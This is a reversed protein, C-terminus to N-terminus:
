ETELPINMREVLPAGAEVHFLHATNDRPREAPKAIMDWGTALSYIAQILGKHCVAITPTTLTQLWPLLRERVDRPSEGGTPRFDLGRAQQATFEDGLEHRLDPFSRGEWEGWSMEVLRPELVPENGLLRATEVARILPSSLWRFGSFEEPLTWRGVARRGGESLPLDTRGQLRKEQNWSTPGHRIMLLPTM